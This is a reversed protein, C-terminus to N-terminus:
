GGARAVAAALARKVYVPAMARRYEGSAFIDGSIDSGLDGLTTAAAETFTDQNAPKGTIAREVSPLRRANPVLGGIAVRVSGCVGNAVKVAAAAGLV